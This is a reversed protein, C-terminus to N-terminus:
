PITILLPADVYTVVAIVAFSPRLNTAAVVDIFQVAPSKVECKATPISINVFLLAHGPGYIALDTLAVIMTTYWGTVCVVFLVANEM